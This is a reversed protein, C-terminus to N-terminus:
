VLKEVGFLALGVDMREPPFVTRQLTRAALAIVNAAPTRVLISRAAFAVPTMAALAGEVVEGRGQEVLALPGQRVPNERGKQEAKGARGPANRPFHADVDPRAIAPAPPEAIRGQGELHLALHLACDFRIVEIVRSALLALGFVSPFFVQPPACTPAALFTLGPPAM